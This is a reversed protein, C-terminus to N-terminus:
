EMSTIATYPLSISLYRVVGETNKTIKYQM